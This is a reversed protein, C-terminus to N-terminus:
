EMNSCNNKLKNNNYTGKINKWTYYISLNSLAIIKEGLRLDLNSTLKLKLIHPKSTKSNDSNIFITGM